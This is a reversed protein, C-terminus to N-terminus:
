KMNDICENMLNSLARAINRLCILDKRRGYNSKVKLIPLANSVMLDNHKLYGRSFSDVIFMNVKTSQFHFDVRNNCGPYIEKIEPSSKVLVDILHKSKNYDERTVEIDIDNITSTFGNLNLALSGVVMVKLGLVNQIAEVKYILDKM